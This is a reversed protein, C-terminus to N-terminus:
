RSSESDLSEVIEERTDFAACANSCVVVDELLVIEPFAPDDTKVTTGRLITLFANGRLHRM